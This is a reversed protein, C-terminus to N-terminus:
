LDTSLPPQEILIAASSGREQQQHHDIPLAVRSLYFAFRSALHERYLDGLCCHRKAGISLQYLLEGLSIVYVERFDIFFPEGSGYRHADEQASFATLYQYRPHNNKRVQDLIRTNENFQPLASNELKAECLLVSSELDPVGDRTVLDCSQTLIVSFPHEIIALEPSGAIDRPSIPSYHILGSVLEGQKLDSASDSPTYAM